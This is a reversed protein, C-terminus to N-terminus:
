AGVNQPALWESRLAHPTLRSPPEDLRGAIEYLYRRPDIGQLLCTGILSYFVAAVDAGRPSGAFNYNAKGKVPRRLDRETDNNHCAIAAHELFVCLREWQNDIYQLAGHMPTRPPARPLEEDVWRRIGALIPRCLEERLALREAIPAAMVVREAVFLERIAALGRTALVADYPLAEYLKRRAHAWCGARTVGDSKELLNFDTAGDILVVGQFEPFLSVVTDAKKDATYTFVVIDYNGWAWLHGHHAKGKVRSEDLVPMGTADARLWDGGLVERAMIKVIPRLLEGFAMMWDCLTQRSLDLGERVFRQAQRYLPLHDCYKDIAVQVLLGDGCIAGPLAYSMPPPATWITSATGTADRHEPFAFHDRVNKHRIIEAPIRELRWTVEQGIVEGPAACGCPCLPHHQEHHVVTRLHNMDEINRRNTQRKKRKLTVTEDDDTADGTAAAAADVTVGSKPDIPLALQNPDIVRESSPGVLKRRLLDLEVQLRKAAAEAAEARACAEEYGLRLAEKERGLAAVLAQLRTNEAELDM